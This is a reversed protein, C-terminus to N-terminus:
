IRKSPKDSAHYKSGRVHQLKPLCSAHGERLRKDKSVKGDRPRNKVGIKFAIHLLVM